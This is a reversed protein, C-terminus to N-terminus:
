EVKGNIPLLFAFTSGEGYNSEVMIKGGHLEVLQKTIALGLGTGEYKRSIGSDLQEFKQFLRPIDEERIGIGTDSVSIRELDGERNASVTIIGEEKNNFKVANSLLNFLIQRLARRDAKISPMETDIKKKLIINHEKADEKILQLIEDIADPLSIDEVVLGFKGADIKALDLVGNILDLLHKSSKIVNDVLLKQNENLEGQGTGQLIISYGIISTLPTRLEHSMITVLESRAKSAGILHENELRLEEIKKRETIDIIVSRCYSSNNDKDNVLISEVQIDFQTRNRDVLRLECTQKINTRFVQQLHLYFVDKSEPSIFLSFQKKILFDIEVGLKNAGTLNVQIILGNKDFSFYGVPAFNYLDYYSERLKDLEKLAMRLEENQVELEKRKRLEYLKIPKKEM